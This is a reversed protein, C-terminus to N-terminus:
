LESVRPGEMWSWTCWGAGGGKPDLDWNQLTGGEQSSRPESPESSKGKNGWVQIVHKWQVLRSLLVVETSMGLTTEKKRVPGGIVSAGPLVMTRLVPRVM